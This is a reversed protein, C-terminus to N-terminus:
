KIHHEIEVIPNTFTGINEEGDNSYGYRVTDGIASIISKYLNVLEEKTYSQTGLAASQTKSRDAIAILDGIHSLYHEIHANEQLESKLLNYIEVDKEVKSDVILAEVRATLPFMLPINSKYSIGAGFLWNQRSTDLQKRLEETIAEFNLEAM